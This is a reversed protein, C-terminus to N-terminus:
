DRGCTECVVYGLCIPCDVYWMAVNFAMEWDHCGVPLEIQDLGHLSRKFPLEKFLPLEILDSGPHSKHRGVNYIPDVIFELTHGQLCAKKLFPPFCDEEHDRKGTCSPTIVFLPVDITPGEDDGKCAPVEEVDDVTTVKDSDDQPTPISDEDVDEQPAPVMEEVAADDESSVEDVSVACGCDKPAGGRMSFYERVM